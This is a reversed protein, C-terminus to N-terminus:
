DKAHQQWVLQVDDDTIAYRGVEADIQDQLRRVRRRDQAAEADRQEILLPIVRRIAGYKGVLPGYVGGFADLRRRATEALDTGGDAIAAVDAAVTALWAAESLDGPDVLRYDTALRMIEVRGLPSTAQTSGALRTYREVMYDRVAADDLAFEERLRVADDTRDSAEARYVQDLIRRQMETRATTEARPPAPLRHPKEKTATHCRYAAALEAIDGLREHMTRYFDTEHHARREGAQYAQQYAVYIAGLARCMDPHQAWCGPVLPTSQAKAPDRTVAPGWAAALAPMWAARTEIAEIAARWDMAEWAWPAPPTAAGERPTDALEEVAESLDTVAQGIATVEARLADAETDLRATLAEAARDRDKIKEALDELRLLAERAEGAVMSLAAMTPDEGAPGAGGRSPTGAGTLHRRLDDDAGM